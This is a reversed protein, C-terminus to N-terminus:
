ASGPLVRARLAIARRQGRPEVVCIEAAADGLVALRAFFADLESRELLAEVDIGLDRAGGNAEVLRRQSDIVLLPDPSTEFVLRHLTVAHIQPAGASSGM